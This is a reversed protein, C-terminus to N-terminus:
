RQRSEQLWEKVTQLQIYRQVNLIQLLIWSVGKGEVFLLLHKKISNEPHKAIEEKLYSVTWEMREILCGQDDEVVKALHGYPITDGAVCVVEDKIGNANWVVEATMDGINGVDTVTVTNEWSGLARVIKPDGSFVRFFDEFLFSM